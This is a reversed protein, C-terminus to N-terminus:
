VISTSTSAFAISPERLAEEGILAFVRLERDEDVDVAEKRTVMFHLAFM